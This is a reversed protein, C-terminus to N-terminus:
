LTVTSATRAYASKTSVAYGALVIHYLVRYYLTGLYQLREKAGEYKKETRAPTNAHAQTFAHIGILSSNVHM